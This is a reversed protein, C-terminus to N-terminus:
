AAGMAVWVAGEASAVATVGGWEEEEKEVGALAAEEKAVREVWWGERAVAVRAGATEM